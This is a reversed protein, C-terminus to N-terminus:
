LPRSARKGQFTQSGPRNWKTKLQAFKESLRALRQGFGPKDLEYRVTEPHRGKIFPAIREEHIVKLLKPDYM